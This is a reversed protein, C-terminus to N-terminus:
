SSQPALCPTKAQPHLEGPWRLELPLSLRPRVNLYGLEMAIPLPHISSQKCLNSNVGIARHGKPWGKGMLSQMASLTMLFIYIYIPLGLLPMAM